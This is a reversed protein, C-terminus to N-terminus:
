RVAGFQKCILDTNFRWQMGIKFSGDLNGKLAERVVTRESVRAIRAVETKGIVAPLEKIEEPTYGALYCGTPTVVSAM